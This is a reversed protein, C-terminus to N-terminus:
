HQRPLHPLHLVLRPVHVRPLHLRWARTSPRRAERRPLEKPTLHAAIGPTIMHM